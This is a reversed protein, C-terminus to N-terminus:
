AISRDVYSCAMERYHNRYLDLRLVEIYSWLPKSLVVDNFLITLKFTEQCPKSASAEFKRDNINAGRSLLKM